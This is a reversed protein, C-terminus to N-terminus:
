DLLGVKYVAHQPGVIALSLLLVVLENISRDVEAIAIVLVLVDGFPLFCAALLVHGPKLRLHVM